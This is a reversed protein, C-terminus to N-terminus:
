WWSSRQSPCYEACANPLVGCVGRGAQQAPWRARIRFLSRCAGVCRSRAGGTGDLSVLQRGIEGRTPHLAAKWSRKGGHEALEAPHVYYTAGQLNMLEHNGLLMKLEGGAPPGGEDGGPRGGYGMNAVTDAGHV